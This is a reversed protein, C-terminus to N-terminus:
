LSFLGVVHAFDTSFIRGIIYHGALQQPDLVIYLEKARVVIVPNGPDAIGIAGYYATAAISCISDVHILEVDTDIGAPLGYRSRVIDYYASTDAVIRRVLREAHDATRGQSICRSSPTREAAITPHVLSPSALCLFLGTGVAIKVMPQRRSSDGTVNHPAGRGFGGEVGDRAVMLPTAENFHMTWSVSDSAENVGGPYYIEGPAYLRVRLRNTSFFPQESFGFPGTSRGAGPYSVDAFCCTAAPNPSLEIRGRVTIRVTTYAPIVIGTSRFSIKGIDDDNSAPVPIGYSMQAQQELAPPSGSPARELPKVPDACALLPTSALAVLWTRARYVGPHAEAM